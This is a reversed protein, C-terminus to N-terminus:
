ALTFINGTTDSNNFKVSFTEGDQLTLASGRDWWAILPDVPSTPTDNYLVVYQFPGITGGSATFVVKVGTVTVTGGSRTGVNQTVKGGSTYGNGAGLETIDARVAHTSANPATNTLAVKLVDASVPPSTADGILDHVKKLIDEAFIQYKNYTAM